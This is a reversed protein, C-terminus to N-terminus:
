SIITFVYKDYKRETMYMFNYLYGIYIKNGIDDFYLKEYIIVKCSWQHDFLKVFRISAGIMIMLM